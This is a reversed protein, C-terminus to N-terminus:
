DEITDTISAFPGIAAGKEIIRNEIVSFQIRCDEQIRANRLMVQPGIVCNAQINTKGMLSSFPYVITDRGIRVDPEIYVSDPDVMTVGNKMWHEVINKKFYTNARALDARSNIGMLVMPDKSKITEVRGGAEVLIKIIDTLYYEGQDNNSKIKSLLPIVTGADFCYHSTNVETIKKEAPSADREEVIRQVKGSNDRVIRGYAPPPDVIATMMTAAAHSRIHKQIMKKLLPGTLFPTDGALLLITGHFGKLSQAATMLAHGTGMQQKQLVYEINEGLTEQVLDAKHGIVLLTRDVRAKRCADIVYSVMPKGLIPHLVKPLASKMRVGKGAALIVAVTKQTSPKM